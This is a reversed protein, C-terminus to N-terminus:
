YQSWMNSAIPILRDHYILSGCLFIEELIAKAWRVV